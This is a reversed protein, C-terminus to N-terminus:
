ARSVGWDQTLRESAKSLPEGDVYDMAMARRSVLDPVVKPIFVNAKYKEAADMARVQNKAEKRFDLEDITVERLSQVIPRLDPVGEPDVTALLKSLVHGTHAQAISATGLPAEKEDICITSAIDAGFEETLTLKVDQVSMPPIKDQLKGFETRYAPAMVVNVSLQQGLKIWFGKLKLIQQYLFRALVENTADWEARYEEGEMLNLSRLKWRTALLTVTVVGAAWFVRVNRQLLSAESSKHLVFLVAVWATTISIRWCFLLLTSFVILAYTVVWIQWFGKQVALELRRKEAKRLAEVEEKLGQLREMAAEVASDSVVSTLSERRSSRNVQGLLALCDASEEVLPACSVCLLRGCFRCHHRRRLTTFTKGCEQCSESAENPVWQTRSRSRTPVHATAIVADLERTFEKVMATSASSAEPPGLQAMLSMDGQLRLKRRMLLMPVASHDQLAKRLSEVSDLRIRDVVPRVIDLISMAIIAIHIQENQDKESGLYTTDVTPSNVGHWLEVSASRRSGQVRFILGAVDNINLLVSGSFDPPILGGSASLAAQLLPLVAECAALEM